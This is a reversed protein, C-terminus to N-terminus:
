RYRGGAVHSTVPVPRRKPVTTRTRATNQDELGSPGHGRVIQASDEAVPNAKRVVVRPRREGSGHLGQFQGVMEADVAQQTAVPDVSLLGLSRPAQAANSGKGANKGRVERRKRGAAAAAQAGQHRQQGFPFHESQPVGQAEHRDAHNHAQVERRNGSPAPQVVRGGLRERVLRQEFEAEAEAERQREGAKAQRELDALVEVDGRSRSLVGGDGAAAARGRRQTEDGSESGRPSHPGAQIQLSRRTVEATGEANVVDEEGAGPRGRPRLVFRDRRRM